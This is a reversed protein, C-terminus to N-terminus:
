YLRLQHPETSQVSVQSGFPRQNLEWDPCMGPNHALNRPTPCTLPLWVIVIKERREGRDLFSYIFYKLFLHQYDQIKLIFLYIFGLFYKFIFQTNCSILYHIIILKVLDSWLMFTINLFNKVTNVHLSFYKCMFHCSTLYKSSFVVSLELVMWSPFFLRKVLRYQLSWIKVILLIFKSGRSWVRYSFWGM